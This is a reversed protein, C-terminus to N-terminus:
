RRLDSVVAAPASRAVARDTVATTTTQLAQNPETTNKIYGSIIMRTTRPKNKQFETSSFNTRNRIDEKAAGAAREIIARSVINRTRASPKKTEETKINGL